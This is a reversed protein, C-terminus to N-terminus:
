IFVGPYKEGKAFFHIKKIDPVMQSCFPIIVKKLLSFVVLDAPIDARGIKQVGIGDAPNFFIMGPYFHNDRDPVRHSIGKGKIRLKM